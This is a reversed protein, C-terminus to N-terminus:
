LAKQQEDKDKDKGMDDGRRECKELRKGVMGKIKEALTREEDLRVLEDAGGISMGLVLINPVTRRGTRQALLDQLARGMTPVASEGDQSESNAQPATSGDAPETQTDLEVIYPKPLIEYTELLLTKARQSHPCYSKSFIVISHHHIIEDLAARVQAHYPPDPSPPASTPKSSTASSLPDDTTYKPKEPQPNKRDTTTKDSDQQPQSAPSPPTPPLRPSAETPLDTAPLNFVVQPSKRDDLIKQVKADTEEKWAKDKSKKNLAKVTKTYFENSQSHRIQLYILLLVLAAFLLRKPHYRGM